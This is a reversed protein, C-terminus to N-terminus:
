SVWPYTLQNEYNINITSVMCQGRYRGPMPNFTLTSHTVCVLGLYRKFYIPEEVGSIVCYSLYVFIQNTNCNHYGCIPEKIGHKINMISVMCEGVISVVGVTLSNAHILSAEGQNHGYTAHM